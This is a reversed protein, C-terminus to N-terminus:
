CACSAVALTSVPKGFQLSSCFRTLSHAGYEAMNSITSCEARRVRAAMVGCTEAVMSLVKQLLPILRIIVGGGFLYLNNANMDNFVDEYIGTRSDVMYGRESGSINITNDGEIYKFINFTGTLGALLLVLPLAIMTSVVAKRIKRSKLVPWSLLILMAAAYGVLISRRDLDYLPVFIATAVIIIQWKKKMEPLLLILVNMITLNHAFNQQADSSLWIAGVICLPTGMWIFSRFIRDCYDPKGLYMVYPLFFSTFMMSSGLALWDAMYDINFFGRVYTIAAYVFYFTMIKRGDFDERQIHRWSMWFLLMLTYFCLSQIIVIKGPHFGLYVSPIFVLPVSLTLFYKLTYVKKMKDHKLVTRLTQRISGM